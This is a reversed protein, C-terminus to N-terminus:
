AVNKGETEQYKAKSKTLISKAAKGAKEAEKIIASVAHDIEGETQLLPSIMIGTESNGMYGTLKLQVVTPGPFDASGKSVTVASIEAM